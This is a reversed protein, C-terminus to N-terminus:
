GRFQSVKLGFEISFHLLIEVLSQSFVHLKDRPLNKIDSSIDLQPEISM